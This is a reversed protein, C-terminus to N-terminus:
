SGNALTRYTIPVHFSDPTCNEIPGIDKAVLKTKAYYDEIVRQEHPLIGWARWFSIRTADTVGDKISMGKSLWLLGNAFQSHQVLWSRPRVGADIYMDYFKSFIPMDGALAKGCSGVASLWMEATGPQSLDLRCMSDKVTATVPNRCMTYKGNSDVVPRAQCFEVHEVEYVPKEAVIDFGLNSFYKSMGGTLKHLVSAECIVVCDDGNNVVQATIGKIDLWTWVMACMILCGKLSTDIDGSMVGAEVEYSIRGDKAFVDGQNHRQYCLLTELDENHGLVSRYMDHVLQLMPMSVSRDFRSADLGVAVPQAFSQFKDAILQGIESGNLGKTVTKAGFMRDIAEYVNHELPRVFMGLEAHFRPSRSQILRPDAGCKTSELKVFSNLRAYGKHFPNTPYDRYVREYLKRKGGTYSKSYEEFGCRVSVRTRKVLAHMFKGLRKVARESAVAREHYEGTAKDYRYLVRRKLAAQANLLTNDYVGMAAGIAVGTFKYVGGTKARVM